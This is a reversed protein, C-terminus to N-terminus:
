RRPYTLSTLTRLARRSQMYYAVGVTYAVLSVLLAVTHPGTQPLETVTGVEGDPSAPEDVAIVETEKALQMEASEIAAKHRTAEGHARIFVLCIGIVVAALVVGIIRVYQKSMDSM